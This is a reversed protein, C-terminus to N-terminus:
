FAPEPRCPVRAPTTDRAAAVSLAVLIRQFCDDYMASRLDLRLMKRGIQLEDVARDIEEYITAWPADPGLAAARPVLAAGIGMGPAASKAIELASRLIMEVDGHFPTEPMPMPPLAPVTIADETWVSAGLAALAAKAAKVQPDETMGTLEAAYDLIVGATETAPMLSEHFRQHSKRLRKNASSLDANARELRGIYATDSEGPKRPTM